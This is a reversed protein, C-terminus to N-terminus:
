RVVPRGQEARWAAWQQKSAQAQAILSCLDEYDVHLTLAPFHDDDMYVEICGGRVEIRQCEAETSTGILM